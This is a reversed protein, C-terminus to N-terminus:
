RVVRGGSSRRRMIEWRGEEDLKWARDSVEGYRLVKKEKCPDVIHLVRM